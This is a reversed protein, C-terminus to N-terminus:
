LSDNGPNKPNFTSNNRLKTHKYITQTPTAANTKKMLYLKKINLKRIFKQLDIYVEFKSVNKDPTYKLGLDLFNIEDLNLIGSSLNFIGAGLIKKKKKKEKEGERKDRTGKRRGMWKTQTINRTWEKLQGGMTGMYSRKTNPLPIEPTAIYEAMRSKKPPGIRQLAQTAWLGM